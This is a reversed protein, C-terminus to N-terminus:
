QRDGNARKYKDKTWGHVRFATGCHEEVQGLQRGGTGVHRHRAFGSSRDISVADRSQRKRQVGMESKPDVMRSFRGKGAIGKFSSRYRHPEAGGRPHLLYGGLADVGGDFSSM